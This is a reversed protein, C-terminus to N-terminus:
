ILVALYLEFPKPTPSVFYKAASVLRERSFILNHEMSMRVIFLIKFANAEYKM